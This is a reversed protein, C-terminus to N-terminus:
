KINFYDKKLFRKSDISIKLLNKKIKLYDFKNVSFMPKREHRKFNKNIQLCAKITLHWGHKKVIKFFPKELYRIYQKVKIYESNKYIKYFDIAIKPNLNSIGSLWSQCGYENAKVWQEKGAGSTIIISKKSIKKCIEKTYNDKKADEKMAVFRKLNMIRNLLDISYYVYPKKTSLGNEILQQHLLLFIKTKNHVTKFHNLIQRENYFKEGFILSVIDAGCKKFYKAYDISQNTSCHYPEACIIINQNSLKKVTDICFKNLSLIEKESLLGLRSNYFMVYFVTAGNKYLFKIYNKLALYDINGDIKFPTIISFIPGKIKKKIYTLKNM